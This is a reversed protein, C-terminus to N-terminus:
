TGPRSCDSGQADLIFRHRCCRAWPHPMVPLPTAAPSPAADALWQVALRRCCVPIYAGPGDFATNGVKERMTGPVEM